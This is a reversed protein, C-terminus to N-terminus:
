INKNKRRSKLYEIIGPLFSIFLILVIIEHIHKDANPIFRTIYYGTFILSASWLLGGIVNYFAFTKFPMQGVGAFLPIFTRVIPVFRAFIIAKSGHKQFFVRTQEIYDPKLFFSDPRSFIANGYRRGLSYGFLNGLVGATFVSIFLPVVPLIKQSALFGATFLLSDGPLIPFVSSELFVISSIGILGYSHILFPIDFMIKTYCLHRILFLVSLMLTKNKNTSLGLSSSPVGEEEPFHEVLQAIEAYIKSQMEPFHSKLKAL